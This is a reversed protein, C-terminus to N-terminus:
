ANMVSNLPSLRLRSGRGEVGVCRLDKEVQM